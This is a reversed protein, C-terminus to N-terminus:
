RRRRMVSAAYCASTALPFPYAYRACTLETTKKWHGLAPQRSELPPLAHEVSSSVRLASAYRSPGFQYGLSRSEIVALLM